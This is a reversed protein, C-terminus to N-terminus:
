PRGSASSSSASSSLIASPQRGYREQTAKRM